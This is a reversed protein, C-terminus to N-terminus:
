MGNVSIVTSDGNFMESMKTVHSVDWDSLNGNFQKAEHFLWSMDTVRSVNWKSLDGNFESAGAFMSNMDTVHGVNWRSIDENFLHRYVFTAAMNTVRSTNWDRITGFRWKCERENEFWLRVANKFNVDTLKEYLFSNIFIILDLPLGIRAEILVMTTVNVQAFLDFV